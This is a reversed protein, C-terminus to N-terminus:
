QFGFGEESPYPPYANQQASCVSRKCIDAEVSVVSEIDDSDYALVLDEKVAFSAASRAEAGPM